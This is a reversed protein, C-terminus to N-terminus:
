RNKWSLSSEESSNMGPDDSPSLDFFGGLLHLKSKHVRALCTLGAISILKLVQRKKLVIHHHNLTVHSYKFVYRFMELDDLPSLESTM